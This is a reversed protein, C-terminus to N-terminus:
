RPAVRLQQLPADQECTNKPIVFTLAVGGPPKGAGTVAEWTAIGGRVALVQKAKSSRALEGGVALANDDTAAIVVVAATPTIKMGKRYALADALPRLARSGEPRADIVCCPPGDKLAATLQARDHLTVPAVQAAGVGAVLLLALLLGARRKM